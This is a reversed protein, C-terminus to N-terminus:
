NWSVSSWWFMLKANWTYVEGRKLQQNLSVRFSFRAGNSGVSQFNGGPASVTRLCTQTEPTCPDTPPPPFSGSRELIASTQIVSGTWLWLRPSANSSFYRLVLSTMVIFFGHPHPSYTSVSVPIQFSASVACLVGPFYRPVISSDTWWLTSARNSEFYLSDSDMSQEPPCRRCPGLDDPSMPLLISFSTGAYTTTSKSLIKSWYNPLRSDPCSVLM